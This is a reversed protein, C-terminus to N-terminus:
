TRSSAKKRTKRTSTARSNSTSPTPTESKKEESVASKRWHPNLTYVADGWKDHLAVAWEEPWSVFQEFSPPWAQRAGDIFVDAEVVAAVYDPYAVARLYNRAFELEVSLAQDAAQQALQLEIHSPDASLAESAKLATQALNSLLTQAQVQMGIRRYGIELTARAVVLHARHASDPSVHDVTLTQV